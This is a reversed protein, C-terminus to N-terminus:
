DDYERELNEPLLQAPVAASSVHMSHSSITYTAIIQVVVRQDHQFSCTPGNMRSSQVDCRRDMNLLFCQRRETPNQEGELGKRM